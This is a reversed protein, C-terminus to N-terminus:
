DERTTASLVRLASRSPLVLVQGVRVLRPDTIQNRTMIAPYFRRGGLEREAIESLTEFEQVVYRREGPELRPEVSERGPVPAAGPKAPIVIKQGERLMTPDDIKNAEQIVKHFRVSGYFKESIGELTDGKQVVYTKEGAAAPTPTPTPITTLKPIVLTSGPRLFDSEDLKNAKAILKWYRSTGYYKQSIESLTDEKLVTHIREGAATTPAEVTRVPETAAPLPPIKLVMGARVETAPDTINNAQAILQWHKSSGYIKDSITSLADGTKVVYSAPTTVEPEPEEIERIPEIKETVGPDTAGPDFGRAAETLSSPDPAVEKIEEVKEAPEPAPGKLEVEGINDTDEKKSSPEDRHYRSMRSSDSKTEAPVGSKQGEGEAMETTEDQGSRMALWVFLVVLLLLGIALGIKVDKNM